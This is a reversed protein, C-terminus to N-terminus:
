KDPRPKQWPYGPDKGSSNTWPHGTNHGYSVRPVVSNITTPGPHHSHTQAPTSKISPPHVQTTKGKNEKGSSNNWPDAMNQGYSGRPGVDKINVPGTEDTPALTLTQTNLPTKTKTQSQIKGLPPYNEKGYSNTWPDGTNSGYSGSPVISKNSSGIGPSGPFRIIGKLYDLIRNGLVRIIGNLSDPIYYLVSGLALPRSPQGYWGLTLWVLRSYVYIQRIM